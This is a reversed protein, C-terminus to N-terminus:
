LSSSFALNMSASREASESGVGTGAPCQQSHAIWNRLLERTADDIDTFRIGATTDPHSWVVVGKLAIECDVNPLRFALALEGPGEFTSCFDRVGVGGTSLNRVQATFARGDDSRVAVPVSLEARFDAPLEAMPRAVARRERRGYTIDYANLKRCLTRRPMGLRAAARSQNGGTSELAHLITAREFENLAAVDHGFAQPPAGALSGDEGTQHLIDDVSIDGEPNLIGLNLILNRLERVNGPWRMRLLLDLADPTFRAGPCDCALFHKALAVIDGPRERLAPIHIHVESIRHFLDRRFSGAQVAAELDRNTATLVRVDVVIKRSGGLRFYPTGDLVRLLKVQVRPDLEGIEDLFITGGNANEFLGPKTSDAGSFAGKEYGFLESEVLHEPLAACNLDVWPKTCRSSYHHILGAILEKGTGTEGTILVAAKHPAVKRAAEVVALMKPDLVVIETSMSKGRERNVTRNLWKMGPGVQM